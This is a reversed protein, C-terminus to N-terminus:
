TGIFKGSVTGRGVNEAARARGRPKGRCGVRAWMKAWMAFIECRPPTAGRNLPTTAGSAGGAAVAAVAGGLVLGAGLALFALDVPLTFTQNTGEPGHTIFLYFRGPGRTLFVLTGGTTSDLNSHPRSQQALATSDLIEFTLLGGSTLQFDYRLSSGVAYEIPEQLSSLNSPFTLHQSLNLATVTVYAGPIILAPALAFLLVLPRM